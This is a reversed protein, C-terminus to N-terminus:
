LPYNKVNTETMVAGSSQFQTLSRISSSVNIMGSGQQAVSARIDEGFVYPVNRATSQMKERLEQVTAQPFQSKLLAFSGAVYPAAMSTGSLIAWGSGALPWTSLISGGPASLQPKIALTDSTPGWSSFNSMMGGTLQPLSEFENSTFYVKYEGEKSANLGGILTRGDVALYTLKGEVLNSSSEEIRLVEFPSPQVALTLCVMLHSVM